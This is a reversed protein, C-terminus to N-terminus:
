RSETKEIAIRKEKLFLRGARAMQMEATQSEDTVVIDMAKDEWESAIKFYGSFNDLLTQAKKEPLGSESVILEFKNM